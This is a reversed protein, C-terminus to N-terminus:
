TAIDEHLHIRLASVRRLNFLCLLILFLSNQINNIIANNHLFFIYRKVCTYVQLQLTNYVSVHIISNIFNWRRKKKKLFLFFLFLMYYRRESNIYIFPMYAYIHLYLKHCICIYMYAYLHLYIYKISIWIYCVIILCFTVISIWCIQFILENFGM